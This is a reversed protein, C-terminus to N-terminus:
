HPAGDPAGAPPGAPTSPSTGPSRVEPRRGPVFRLLRLEVDGVGETTRARLPVRHEDDSLWVALERAERGASRLVRADIRRGRRPGQPAAVTEIPGISAEIRFLRRRHFLDLCFRRGERLDRARLWPLIALVDVVDTRSSVRAERRLRRGGGRQSLVANVRGGAPGAPGIAAPAFAADERTITPEGVFLARTVLENAMRVPVSSREDILTVMTADVEGLVRAVSETHARASVPLVDIGDVREREGVVLGVSGARVGYVTLEWDMSEGPGSSSPGNRLPLSGGGCAGPPPLPDEDVIRSEPRDLPLPVLPATTTGARVGGVTSLATALVAAWVAVAGRRRARGRRARREGRGAPRSM